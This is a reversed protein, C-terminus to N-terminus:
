LLNEYAMSTTSDLLEMRQNVREFRVECDVLMAKVRVLKDDTEKLVGALMDRREYRDEDGETFDERPDDLEEEEEKQVLQSDLLEYEEWLQDRERELMKMERKLQKSRWLWLQCAISCLKRVELAASARDLLTPHFMTQDTLQNLVDWEKELQNIREQQVQDEGDSDSSELVQSDM